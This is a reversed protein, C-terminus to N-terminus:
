TLSWGYTIYNIIKVFHNFWMKLSTDNSLTVGERFGCELYAMIYSVNLM